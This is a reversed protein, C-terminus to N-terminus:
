NFCFYRTCTFVTPFSGATLPSVTETYVITSTTSTSIDDGESKSDDKEQQTFVSEETANDITDYSM